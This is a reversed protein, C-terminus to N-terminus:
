FAVDVVSSYKGQQKPKATNRPDCIVFSQDGKGATAQPNAQAAAADGAQAAAKNDAGCETGAGQISVMLPQDSPPAANRSSRGGPIEVMKPGPSVQQSPPAQTAKGVQDAMKQNAQNLANGLASGSKAAAAGTTSNTLASEAAAQARAVTPFVALVVALAAGFLIRRSM